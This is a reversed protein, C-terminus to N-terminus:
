AYSDRKKVLKKKMEINPNPSGKPAKLRLLELGGYVKHTGQTCRPVLSDHQATQATMIMRFQPVGIGFLNHERLEPCEIPRMARTFQPM